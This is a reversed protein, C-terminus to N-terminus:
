LKFFNEGKGLILYLPIGLLAARLLQKPYKSQTLLGVLKKLQWFSTGLYKARSAGKAAQMMKKLLGKERTLTLEHNEKLEKFILFRSLFMSNYKRASFDKGIRNEHKRIYVTTTDFIKFDINKIMQRLHFTWEQSSQLQENYPLEPIIKKNWIVSPIAWSVKGNCMDDLIDNNPFPNAWLGQLKSKDSKFTEAKSVSAGIRNEKHWNLHKKFHDVALLDDSDLWNIFDGSSLEFGYNRCANAGKPKYIPRKHYQIRKDEKAFFSVVEETNDTSGDDIILCEWNIHTQNIVSQITEAILYSRNFTPIILSIKM